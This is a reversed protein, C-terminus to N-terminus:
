LISQVLICQNDLSMPGLDVPHHSERGKLFLHATSIYKKTLNQLLSSFFLCAQLKAEDWWLTLITKQYSLKITKIAAIHGLTYLFRFRYSDEANLHNKDINNLSFL